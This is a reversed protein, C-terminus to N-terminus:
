ELLVCAARRAHLSGAPRTVPPLAALVCFSQARSTEWCRTRAQNRNELPGHNGRPRCAGDGEALAPAAPSWVRSLLRLKVYDSAVFCWSKQQPFSAELSRWFDPLSTTVDPAVAAMEGGRRPAWHQPTAQPSESPSVLLSFVVCLFGTDRTTARLRHPLREPEM